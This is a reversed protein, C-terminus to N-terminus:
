ADASRALEMAMSEWEWLRRPDDRVTSIDKLIIERCCGSTRELVDALVERAHGLRWGDEAVLAPNPKYSFVYDAGVEKAARDVDIWPSMSIKRLNPIRRLIEMKLDLPECCGYYTAGWRELWPLDHRVAFDWHMEPSVESFIQANSCGWLNHPRVHEPDFPAGPLEDTYGYGGSGVRFNAAGTSFLDLAEMQDLECMKAEVFRDVAAHVMDPRLVLDMMAQQVGWWRILNDWPTFWIHRIGTKRVPLIDGFVASNRAFQRETEEDDRTVVPTQIKDIDAPEVIQPHFERSVVGSRPDTREVHVDESIGLGTSRWVIPSEIFDSVIMDGPFHRWQYLLRRLALERGHAWADECQCALEGDADMEHWPIETIGVLPRVKERRNLRGWLEAKERQVPLAAVTAMEAALRRLMDTDSAKLMQM